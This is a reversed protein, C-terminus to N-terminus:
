DVNLVRAIKLLEEDLLENPMAGERVRESNYEPDALLTRLARQFPRVEKDRRSVYTIKVIDNDIPGIPPGLFIYPTFYNVKDVFVRGEVGGSFIYHRVQKQNNPM